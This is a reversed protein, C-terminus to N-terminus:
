MLGDHKGSGWLRAYKLQARFDKHVAEAAQEVTSGRPLVMPDTLDAKQGPAKTYVRIVDLLQFIRAKLEELGTGNKASVGICSAVM